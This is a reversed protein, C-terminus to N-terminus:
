QRKGRRGVLAIGAAGIGVLIASAPEPVVDLLVDDVATDRRAFFGVGIPHGIAPSGLPVTYSLSMQAWNAQSQAATMGATRQPIGSTYLVKALSNADSFAVNGDFIYMFLGNANDLLQDNQAWLSFTYTKGAEFVASLEQASYNALGHMAQNGSRPAPRKNTASSTEAYTSNYLWHSDGDDQVYGVPNDLDDVWPSLPAPSVRYAGLPDAAYAYGRAPVVYTEFGSDGVPINIAHAVSPAWIGAAVIAASLKKTWNTIKM